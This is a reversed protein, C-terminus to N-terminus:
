SMRTTAGPARGPWADHRHVGPRQGNTTTRQPLRQRGTRESITLSEEATANRLSSRLRQNHPERVHTRDPSPGQTPMRIGLECCDDADALAAAYGVVSAAGAYLSRRSCLTIPSARLVYQDQSRVDSRARHPRYQDYIPRPYM